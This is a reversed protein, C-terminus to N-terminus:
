VSFLRNFRIAEVAWDTRASVSFRLEAIASWMNGHSLSCCIRSGGLVTGLCILGANRRRVRERPIMASQRADEATTM